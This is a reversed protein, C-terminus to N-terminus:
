QPYDDLESSTWKVFMDVGTEIFQHMFLLFEYLGYALPLPVIYLPWTGGFVYLLVTCLLILMAAMCSFQSGDRLLSIVALFSLAAPWLDLLGKDLIKNVWKPNEFDNTNFLQNWLDLYTVRAREEEEYDVTRTPPEPPPTAVIRITESRREVSKTTWRGKTEITVFTGDMAMLTAEQTSNSMGVLDLPPFHAPIFLTMLLVSIVFTGLTM